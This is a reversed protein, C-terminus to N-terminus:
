KWESEAKMNTLVRDTSIGQRIQPEQVVHSQTKLPRHTNQHPWQFILNVSTALIEIGNQLTLVTGGTFM